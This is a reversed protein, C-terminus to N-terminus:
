FYRSIVSKRTPDSIKGAEYMKAWFVGNYYLFASAFGVFGLGAVVTVDMVMGLVMVLFGGVLTVLMSNGSPGERRAPVVFRRSSVATNM